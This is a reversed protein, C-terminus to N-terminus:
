FERRERQIEQVAAISLQWSGHKMWPFALWKPAYLVLPINKNSQGTQNVASSIVAGLLVSSHLDGGQQGWGKCFLSASWWSLTCCGLCLGVSSVERGRSKSSPALFAIM